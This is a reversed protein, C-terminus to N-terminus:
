IKENRWPTSKRRKGKSEPNVSYGSPCFGYTAGGTVLTQGGSKHGPKVLRTRLVKLLLSLCKSLNCFLQVAATTNHHMKEPLPQPRPPRFDIIIVVKFNLIKRSKAEPGKNAKLYHWGVMLVFLGQSVCVFVLSCEFSGVLDPWDM